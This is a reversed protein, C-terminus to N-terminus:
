STSNNQRAFYCRLEALHIETSDFNRTRFRPFILTVSTVKALPAHFDYPDISKKISISWRGRLPIRTNVSGM